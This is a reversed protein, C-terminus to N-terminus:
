FYLGDLTQSQWAGNAYIKFTGNLTNFWGDGDLTTGPQTDQTYITSGNDSGDAWEVDFDTDTKKRLYQQADGGAIIGQGTPGPPGQIGVKVVKIASM